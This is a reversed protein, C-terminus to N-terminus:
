AFGVVISRKLNYADRYLLVSKAAHRMLGMRVIGSEMAGNKQRLVDTLLPVLSYNLSAPEMASEGDQKMGYELNSSGVNVMANFFPM